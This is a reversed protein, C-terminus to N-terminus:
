QYKWNMAKGDSVWEVTTAIRKARTEVRKAETVWEIYERRHSPSFNEFTAAAKKNKRLAAALEEPMKAEKKPARKPRVIKVGAEIRQALLSVTGGALM